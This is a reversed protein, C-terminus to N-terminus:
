YCWLPPPPLPCRWLAVPVGGHGEGEKCVVVDKGGCGLACMDHGEKVSSGSSWGRGYPARRCPQGASLDAAGVVVTSSHATVTGCASDAQRRLPAWWTGHTCRGAAGHAAAWWGAAPEHHGAPACSEAAAAAAAAAAPQWRGRRTASRRAHWRRWPFRRWGAPQPRWADPAARGDYWPAPWCRPARWPLPPSPWPRGYGDGTRAHGHWPRGAHRCLSAAVVAVAAVTHSHTNNFPSPPLPSPPPSGAAAPPSLPPLSAHSVISCSSLSTCSPPPGM